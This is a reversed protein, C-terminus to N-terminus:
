SDGRVLNWLEVTQPFLAKGERLTWEMRHRLVQRFVGDFDVPVLRALFARDEPSFSRGPELYDAMYLARGARGWAPSGVTHWRIATLLEERDEGLSALYTAAAPGHLLEMASGHDGSLARLRPEDADRLADHLRGADHWLRREAEDLALAAAWGDLLATVREIHARRRDSVRAWDPLEVAATRDSMAIASDPASGPPTAAPPM